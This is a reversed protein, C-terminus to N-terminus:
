RNSSRQWLALICRAIVSAASLAGIGICIWGLVPYGFAQVLKGGWALPGGVLSCYILASAPTGEQLEVLAVLLTALSAWGLVFWPWLRGPEELLWLTVGVCIWTQLVCNNKLEGIPFACRWGCDTLADYDLRLSKFVLAKRCQAAPTFQETM